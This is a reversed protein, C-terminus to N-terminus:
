DFDPVNTTNLAQAISDINRDSMEIAGSNQMQLKADGSQRMAKVFPDRYRFNMIIQAVQRVSLPMGNERSAAEIMDNWGQIYAQAEDRMRAHLFKVADATYDMHPPPNVDVMPAPPPQAIHHALHGLVFVLSNPYIEDPTVVDYLHNNAQEEVFEDTLYITGGDVHAGFRGLIPGNHSYRIQIKDINRAAAAERLHRVLAPSAGLAISVQRGEDGGIPPLPMGSKDGSLNQGSGGAAAASQAIAVLSNASSSSIRVQDFWNQWDQRTSDSALVSDPPLDDGHWERTILHGYLPGRIAKTWIVEHKKLTM